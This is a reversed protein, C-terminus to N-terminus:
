FGAIRQTTYALLRGDPSFRPNADPAPNDETINRAEASGPRVLFLDMKPRADDSRSDATFAILSGDPAVDYSNRGQGSRPLELGTGLTIPEITGGSAPIRYLHAQRTEDLWRDWSSTPLASWTHASMHGNKRRDLEAQMEEWSKEPFVNSIFYIHDGVWAPASVGTPVETLRLAEGPSDMPLLYVQGADDGDRRTVFALTRGDPSFTAQGEASGHRTLPREVTGDSAFLWLDTHSKDDDVTYRTVPAVVWRGDPSIAPAGVRKLQWLVEASLTNDAATTAPQGLQAAAPMAAVLILVPVLISRVARGRAAARRTM